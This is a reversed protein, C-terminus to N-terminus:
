ASEGLGERIQREIEGAERAQDVNIMKAYGEAGLIRAVAKVAEYKDLNKVLAYAREKGIDFYLDKLEAEPEAADVVKEVYARLGDPDDHFRELTSHPGTPLKMLGVPM